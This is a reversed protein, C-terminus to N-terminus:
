EKGKKRKERERINGNFSIAQRNTSTVQLLANGSPHATLRLQYANSVDKPRILIDWGSKKKPSISFEADTSTFKIGGETPYASASYSRGFYPLFSIITDGAVTLTYESTLQMSRGGLPVATQAVFEFDRHEIWDKVTSKLSDPLAQTQASVQVQLGTLILLFLGIKLITKM